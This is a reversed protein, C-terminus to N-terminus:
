SKSKLLLKIKEVLIFLSESKYYYDDANFILFEQEETSYVSSIIVKILPYDRRIIDFVDLGNVKPLLIDLVVLDINNNLRVADLAEKGDGAELPLFGAEKLHRHFISRIRPEDDAILIQKHREM